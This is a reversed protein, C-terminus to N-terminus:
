GIDQRSGTERSLGGPSVGIRQVSATSDYLNGNTGQTSITGQPRSLSNSVSVSRLYAGGLLSATVSASRCLWQIRLRRDAAPVDISLRAREHRSAFVVRFGHSEPHAPQHM